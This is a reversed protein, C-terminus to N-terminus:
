VERGFSVWHQLLGFLRDIVLGIAGILLIATIISTISLNNWENWVFYGVGTGGILIEAAVIVLWAIGASIRMGSVISPAAAPLIV